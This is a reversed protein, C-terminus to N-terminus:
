DATPPAWSGVPPYDDVVREVLGRVCHGHRYVIPDPFPEGAVHHRILLDPENFGMLARIYTTGSFRPNIEFPYLTGDVFRCQVNLPGQSGVAAAVAECARRVEPFDGVYGQSVGSSIALVPGLESRGTRNPIKVRNSLGSMIERNLALSGVFRGDLSHLVSVTYEDGPTGVYEQVLAVGGQRVITRCADVLETRDQALFTNNSGGGGMSPKVVVPLVPDEPIEDEQEVRASSPVPLGAAALTQATASKDMCLSIVSPENILPLVGVSRFVDRHAAIAKLEPESGHLLVDISEARCIELLSDIYAADSAPPVLYAADLDFLGFSLPSMDLGVLRYRGTLQLAKVIEHGHGGGGVGTVLVSIRDGTM